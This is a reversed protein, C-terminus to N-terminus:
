GLVIIWKIMCFSKIKIKSIDMYTTKQKEAYFICNVWNVVFALVRLIKPILNVFIRM